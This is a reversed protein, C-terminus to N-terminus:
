RDNEEQLQEVRAQLLRLRQDGAGAREEQLARNQEQLAAVQQELQQCRQQAGGAEPPEESLFYYRRSQADFGGYTEPPDKDLVEQIAAMVGHQVSKELTMIRQIHEERRECSVACGLVLRVLKGLQEPDACQAALVVDPVHQEAVAQGLVDQWYELVSQLVKRLNSAKLRWNEGADDRIRGLWLESFWSADIRHLVHALTVGSALDQPSACPSPPAFTQLWTLLPGCADRGAATAAMGPGTRRPCRAGGLAACRSAVGGEPGAEGREPGAGGSTQVPEEQAVSDRAWLPQLEQGRGREKPGTGGGHQARGRGRRGRRQSLGADGGGGGRRGSGDPGAPGAGDPSRCGGGPAPPPPPIPPAAKAPTLSSSPSEPQTVPPPLPPPFRGRPCRLPAPTLPTAM